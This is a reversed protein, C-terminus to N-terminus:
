QAFAPATSLIICNCNRADHDQVAGADRAVVIEVQRKSLKDVMERLNGFEERLQEREQPSCKSLNELTNEVTHQAKAFNSVDRSDQSDEPAISTDSENSNM